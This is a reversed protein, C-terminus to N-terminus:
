IKGGLYEVTERVQQSVQTGPAGTYMWEVVEDWAEPFPLPIDVTDGRQVHECLLVAALLPARYLAYEIDVDDDDDAARESM